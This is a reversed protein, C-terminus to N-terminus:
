NGTDSAGFATYPSVNGCVQRATNYPLYRFVTNTVLLRTTHSHSQVIVGLRHMLYTCRNIVIKISQSRRFVSFRTRLSPPAVVNSLPSSLTFSQYVVKLSGSPFWNPPKSASISISVRAMLCPPSNIISTSLAIYIPLGHSVPLIRQRINFCCTCRM